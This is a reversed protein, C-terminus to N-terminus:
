FYHVIIGAPLLPQYDHLRRNLVSDWGYVSYFTFTRPAGPRTGPMDWSAIRRWRSPTGEDFLSDALIATSVGNKRSLSDAMGPNWSNARISRAIEPSTAGTYDVKRGDTFYALAAVDNTGVTTRRYYRHVFAAVPFQQEYIRISDQEFHALATGNQVIFPLAMVALIAFPLRSTTIPIAPRGAPHQRSQRILLLSTGFAATVLLVFYLPYSGMVLPTPLFYGGKILSIVGFLLIPLLAIALLQLAQKVRSQRYHSQRTGRLTALYIAALAILLLAEYGTAVALMAYLYIRPPLKSKDKQLSTALAEIFLFCLFLQLTAETGGVVLLPLASFLVTLILIKLQTESRVYRRILAQQLRYLFAIAIATNVIVPIILHSGTIFFVAALLIPYLLSATASQFMYKSVGWVKYFALSRATSINLFSSNLPYSCTGGTHALLHAELLIIPVLLVITAALLILSTRRDPLKM